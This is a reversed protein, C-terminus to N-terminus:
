LRCRPPCLRAWRTASLARALPIQKSLDTRITLMQYLVENISLQSRRITETMVNLHNFDVAGCFTPRLSFAPCLSSILLYSLLNSCKEADRYQWYCDWLFVTLSSSLWILILFSSTKEFALTPSRRVLLRSRTLLPCPLWLSCRSPTRLRGIGPWRPHALQLLYTQTWIEEVM